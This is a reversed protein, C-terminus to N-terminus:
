FILRSISASNLSLLQLRTEPSIPNCIVYWPLRVSWNLFIGALILLTLDTLVHGANKFVLGGLAPLLALVLPASHLHSPEDQTKQGPAIARPLLLESMSSKISERDVSDTTMFSSRRREGYSQMDGLTAARALPRQRVPSMTSRGSGFASPENRPSTGDEVKGETSRQNDRFM